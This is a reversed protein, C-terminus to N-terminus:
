QALGADRVLSAIRERRPRRMKRGAHFMDNVDIEVAARTLEIGEIGFWQECAVGTPRQRAPVQRGLPGGAGRERRREAKALIPLAADLHALNERSGGLVDVIDAEDARHVGIRRIM